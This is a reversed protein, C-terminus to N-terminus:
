YTDGAWCWGHTRVTTGSSSAAHRADVVRGSLVVSMRANVLSRLRQAVVAHTQRRPLMQQTM